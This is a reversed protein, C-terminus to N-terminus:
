LPESRPVGPRRPYQEPTAQQKAVIVIVARNDFGEGYADYVQVEGAGLVELAHGADQLEQEARDAKMAVVSGGIQVFPMAYELLERMSGVARCLAVDYRERHSADHAATEARANLVSCQTLEMTAITEDLFRAKKGTAELLTVNLDRRTVALPIGPLGGGSGVDIMRAGAPLGAIFPLITLSDIVHRRWATQLDKIGTLNFKRNAELLLDLYRALSALHDDAVEVDLRQLDASVFDPVPPSPTLTFKQTKNTFGRWLHCHPTSDSEPM